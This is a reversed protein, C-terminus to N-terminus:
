FIGKFIEREEKDLKDMIPRAKVLSKFYADFELSNYVNFVNFDIDDLSFTTSDINYCEAFFKNDNHYSAGLARIITYNDVNDQANIRFQDM